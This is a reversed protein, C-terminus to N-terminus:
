PKYSKLLPFCSKERVIYLMFLSSINYEKFESVLPKIGQTLEGYFQM